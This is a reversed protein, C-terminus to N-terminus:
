NPWFEAEPIDIAPALWIFLVLIFEVIITLNLEEVSFYISAWPTLDFKFLDVSSGDLKTDFLIWADWISLRTPEWFTRALLLVVM